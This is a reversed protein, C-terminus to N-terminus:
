ITVSRLPSLSYLAIPLTGGSIPVHCPQGNERSKNTSATSGKAPQILHAGWTHPSQQLDSESSIMDNYAPSMYKYRESGLFEM